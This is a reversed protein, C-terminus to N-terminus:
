WRPSETPKNQCTNSEKEVINQVQQTKIVEKYVEITKNSHILKMLKVSDKRIRIKETNSGTSINNLLKKFYCRPGGL